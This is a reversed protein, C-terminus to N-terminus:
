VEADEDTFNRGSKHDRLGLWSGCEVDRISKRFIWFKVAVGGGWGIVIPCHGTDTFNAVRFSLFAPLALIRTCTTQDRPTQLHLSDESRPGARVTGQLAKWAGSRTENGPVRALQRGGSATLWRRESAWGDQKWM